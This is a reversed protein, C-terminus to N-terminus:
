LKIGSKVAMIFDSITESLTLTSKWNDFVMRDFDEHSLWGFFHHFPCSPLPPDIRDICLLLPRHDFRIRLLHHVVCILFNRMGTIMASCEILTCMLTEVLGLTILVKSVWTRFALTSLLNSSLKVRSLALLVVM